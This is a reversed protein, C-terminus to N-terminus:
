EYGFTLSSFYTVFEDGTKDDAPTGWITNLMWKGSQTLPFEAIGNEDTKTAQRNHTESDLRTLDISAGSLAHGMFLVKVRLKENELAQYPHDVPVIELSHGVPMLANETTTDGVQIIAKARRSYREVGEKDANNLANRNAIIATLGEEEAYDNFKEASLRSISETSEFSVLHTGESSVNLKVLGPTVATRSIIQSSVDQKKDGAHHFLSVVRFPQLDWNESDYHHGVKFAVTLATQQSANFTNPQLWFDHANVSSSFASILLSIGLIHKKM